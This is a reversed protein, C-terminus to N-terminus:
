AERLEPLLAIVGDTDIYEAAKALDGDEIAQRILNVRLMEHDMSWARCNDKRAVERIEQIDSNAEYEFVLTIYKKM